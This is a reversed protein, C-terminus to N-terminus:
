RKRYLSLAFWDRSDTWHRVPDYGCDAFTRHMGEITFKRSIETRITEAAAFDISLDLAGLSATQAQGSELHMEIRHHNTDYFARHAFQDVRFNGDFRGNLHQLMNLNFAATVGDADNYAAEIIEPDKQLDFGILFYEGSKLAGAVYRLFAETEPPTLNGVTSGLFLVMRSSLERPPLNGLAQEYTGILGWIQLGPYAEVLERSSDKLIQGSVDVPLYRLAPADGRGVSWYAEILVRTKRASGSGLEIVECPGTISVIEAASQQLILEETRTPYYEPTDTIQEFLESGRDDYFYKPPLFKPRHTLGAVVDTGDDDDQTFDFETWRFEEAESDEYDRALDNM